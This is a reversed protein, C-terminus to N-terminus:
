SVETRLQSSPIVKVNKYQVTPVETDSFRGPPLFAWSYRM